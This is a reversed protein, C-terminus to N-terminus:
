KLILEKVLKARIRNNELNVASCCKKCYDKLKGSLLSERIENLAKGNWVQKLTKNKNALNDGDVGGSISCPAVKGDPLIILNYFPEFCPLSLFPNHSSISKREKIIKEDMHEAAKEVIDSELFDKINTFINNELVFKYAKAVEAQLEKRQTQNLELKKGEKGWVTMPQVQVDGISHAVAFKMLEFLQKYNKNSLVINLRLFPKEKGTKNKEDNFLKLSKVARSFSNKGRLADNTKERPSDVSFTVIDWKAKVLEAVNQKTFLTGNTILLGFMNQKKIEKMIDVIGEKLLPEGSGPIRVEQVGLEAAEKVISMIKAKSLEDKENSNVPFERQWCSQCKLNCRNTVNLELTIPGAKKGEAWKVLRKIKENM